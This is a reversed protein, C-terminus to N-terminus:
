TGHHMIQHHIDVGVRKSWAELLRQFVPGGPGGSNGDGIPIGNIKNVPALCYPTSVLFAEDANVVDHVQYDRSEYGVGLEGCLERVTQQSIGPLINRPSPQRVVGDRVMLFNSGSTETINGDLDLILTIAKPDVLQTERDALWWHMRSRHKIKPDTCQPPVHRISPTVVHVGQTFYHRWFQFPLPFTHICFTPTMDGAGGAMGAYVRFEGPTIFWVMALDQEPTLLRANHKALERSTACLEDRSLPCQLRAYKCSRLFRAIHDELRFLEHRFTRALDTVTTGIVIGADYIALKAQSAPVFRGGLYVHPEDPM